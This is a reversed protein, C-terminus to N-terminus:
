ALVVLLLWITQYFQAGTIKAVCLALLALSFRLPMRPESWALKLLYPLVRQLTAQEPPKPLPKPPEKSIAAPISRAVLKACRHRRSLRPVAHSASAGKQIRSWQVSMMAVCVLLSAASSDASLKKSGAPWGRQTLHLVFVAVFLRM